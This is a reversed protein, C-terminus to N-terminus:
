QAAAAHGCRGRPEWVLRPLSILLPIIYYIVRRSAAVGLHQRVAEYTDRM